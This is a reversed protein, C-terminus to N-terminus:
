FISQIIKQVIENFAYKKIKGIAPSVIYEMTTMLIHCKVYSKKSFEFNFIM